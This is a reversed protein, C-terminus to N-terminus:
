ERWIENAEKECNREMYYSFLFEKQAKTYDRRPNITAMAVGQAPNHLLVWGKKTLVDGAEYLVPMKEETSSRKLYEYAWKQHEGWEVAHFKGSPELWGYDETTHEETDLMRKMYSDLTRSVTPSTATLDEDLENGIEEKLYRPIMKMAVKWRRKYQELEDKIKKQDGVIEWVNMDHPMKEQHEPSYIELHYSGDAINGKLAARGLLVDEAHRRIQEKTEDTGSMCDNLIEICKDYGKGELYFWERVLGTIWEGSINFQLKCEEMKRRNMGELVQETDIGDQKKRLKRKRRNAMRKEFEDILIYRYKNDWYELLQSSIGTKKSMTEYTIGDFLMKSVISKKYEESYKSRNNHDVNKIEEDKYQKVWKRLAQVTIKTKAAFEKRTMGSALLTRVIGRKFDETYQM